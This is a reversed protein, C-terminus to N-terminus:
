RPNETHTNYSKLIAQYLLYGQLMYGKPSFHIYDNAALARSKWQRVSGRGGMLSALDWWACDNAEAYRKIENNVNYVDGNTRGRKNTDPALTFLVPTDPLERRLATMFASMESRFNAARYNGQADNTGLSVIILDAQLATIQRFFEPNAAYSRFSAGNVGTSHYLLGPQSRELIMGQLTLPASGELFELNLDIQAQPGTLALEHRNLNDFGAVAERRAESGNWSLRIPGGSTLLSIRDHTSEIGFFDNTRISLNGSGGTTISYGSLGFSDIRRWSSSSSFRYDDPQNTGALRLPFTLGRGANGFHEQLNSRATGALYGSQIHSDGIQFISVRDRLGSRLAVLKQYFGALAVTDNELSNHETDLFSFQNLYQDSDMLLYYSQIFEELTDLDSPYEEDLMSQDISTENISDGAVALSFCFLLLVIIGEIKKSM